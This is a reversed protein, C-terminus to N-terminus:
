AKDIPLPFIEPSNDFRDASASVAYASGRQVAMLAQCTVTCAFPAILTFIAKGGCGLRTTRLATKAFVATIVIGYRRSAPVTDAYSTVAPSVVPVSLMGAPLVGVHQIPLDSNVFVTTFALHVPTIKCCCPLAVTVALPNGNDFGGLRALTQMRTDAQVAAPAVLFRHISKRM